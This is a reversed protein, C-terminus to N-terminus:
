MQVKEEYLIGTFTLILQDTNKTRHFIKCVFRLPGEQITEVPIYLSTKYFSYFFLTVPVQSVFVFCNTITKILAMNRIM